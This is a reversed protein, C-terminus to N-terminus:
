PLSCNAISTPQTLSSKCAYSGHFNMPASPRCGFTGLLSSSANAFGSVAKFLLSLRHHCLSLFRQVKLWLPSFPYHQEAEWWLTVFDHLSDEQLVCRLLHALLLHHPVTPMPQSLTFIVENRQNSETMFHSSKHVPSIM